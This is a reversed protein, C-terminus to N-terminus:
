FAKGSVSSPFADVFLAQTHHHCKKLLMFVCDCERTTHDGSVFIGSAFCIAFTASCMPKRRERKKHPPGPRVAVRM